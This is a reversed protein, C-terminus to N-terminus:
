YVDKQYRKQKRMQKVYEVAAESTMKGEREIVQHLALDVDRAMRKADGCVYFFAGGKIWEWLEVANELIKDQVYVKYEQDRSFALDLRTLHKENMRQEWEEEYLYNFSRRQEGFFLWKRGGAGRHAYEQVFARFPAVGTGAGVMIIDTGFDEPLSFLSHAVFVPIKEDHMMAREALYASAVGNRKREHAETRIVVVTLHVEEPYLLPSSAISYLRPMLRKLHDVYQQPSFRVSRFEMALDIWDRNELYEKLEVAHEPDVLRELQAKEVSNTVQDKLRELFKKTPDCLSLHHLLAQRLGVSGEIKPLVVEERGDFGLAHLLTDVAEPDNTPYVGLWDGVEYSMGSGAIDIVFHFTEKESGEKSLRRREVLSAPFPNSKDYVVVGSEERLEMRLCTHIYKEFMYLRFIKVM